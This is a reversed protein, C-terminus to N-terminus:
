MGPHPLLSNNRLELVGVVDSLISLYTHTTMELERHGWPSYDVLSRQGHSKGPLFIPTSQWKRSWPIKRFLRDLEQRGRSRCPCASEKGSYWRPLGYSASAHAHWTAGPMDSESSDQPGHGM